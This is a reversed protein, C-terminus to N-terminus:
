NSSKKTKERLIYIAKSLISIYTNYQKLIEKISEDEIFLLIVDLFFTIIQCLKELVKIEESDNVDFKSDTNSDNGYLLENLKLADNDTIYLESNNYQVIFKEFNDADFNIFLSSIKNMVDDIESIKKISDITQLIYSINQPNINYINKISESLDNNLNLKNAHELQQSSIGDQLSLLKSVSPIFDFTIKNLDDIVAYINKYKESLEYSCHYRRQFEENMCINTNVKEIKKLIPLLKAIREEYKKKSM